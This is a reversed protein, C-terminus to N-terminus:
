ELDEELSELREVECYTVFAAISAQLAYVSCDARESYKACLSDHMADAADMLAKSQTTLKNLM